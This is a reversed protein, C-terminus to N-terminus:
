QPGVDYRVVNGENNIEMFVSIALRDEGANLSCIGNSLRPPLMPIVRDVLYVSTGREFAEKDLESNEKVYFSVDAIHVGLRYTGNSLTELSVADDLDRADESDITIMPLDRLDWRGEQDEPPVTLSIGAAEKLVRRPFEEPLGYKKVISLIDV